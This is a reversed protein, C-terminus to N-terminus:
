LGYIVFDFSLNANGILYCISGALISPTRFAYPFKKVFYNILLLYM